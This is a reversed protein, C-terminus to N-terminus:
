VCRSTYLLCNNYSVDKSAAPLFYMSGDVHSFDQEGTAYIKTADYGDFPKKVDAFYAFNNRSDAASVSEQAKQNIIGIYAKIYGRNRLKRPNRIDKKFDESVNQM